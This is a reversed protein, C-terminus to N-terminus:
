VDLPETVFAWHTVFPMRWGVIDTYWELLDYQIDHINEEVSLDNLSIGRGMPVSLRVLVFSGEPPFGYEEISKWQMM